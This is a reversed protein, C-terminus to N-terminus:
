YGSAPARPWPAAASSPATSSRRTWLLASTRWCERSLLHSHAVKRTYTGSPKYQSYLARPSNVARPVHRAQVITFLPWHIYLSNQRVNINYIRECKVFHKGYIYRGVKSCKSSKYKGVIFKNILYNYSMENKCFKCM